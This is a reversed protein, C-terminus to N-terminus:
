ILKMSGTKKAKYASKMAKKFNEDVYINNKVIDVWCTKLVRLNDGFKELITEWVIELIKTSDDLTGTDEAKAEAMGDIFELTDDSKGM